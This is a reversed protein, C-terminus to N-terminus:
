QYYPYMAQRVDLEDVPVLLRRGDELQFPILRRSLEVDHGARRLKQTVEEPVASPLERLWDEDLRDRSVAPLGYTHQKGDTGRGALGVVHVGPDDANSTRSILPMPAGIPGFGPLESAVTAYTAPAPGQTRMDRALSTLGIALLFSAAMGLLTSLYDHRRRRTSVPNPTAISQSPEKAAPPRSFATM